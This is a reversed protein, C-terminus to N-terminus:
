IEMPGINKLSECLAKILYIIMNFDLELCEIFAKLFIYYPKM